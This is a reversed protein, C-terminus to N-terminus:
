ALRPTTEGRGKTNRTNAGLDAYSSTEGWAPWSTWSVAPARPWRNASNARCASTRRAVKCQRRWLTALLRTPQPSSNSGLLAGPVPVLRRRQAVVGL